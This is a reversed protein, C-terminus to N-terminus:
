DPAAPPGFLTRWWQRWRSLPKGDADLPRGDNAYREADEIPKGAHFVQRQALKGNPHFRRLVGQLKGQRYLAEELLTGDPLWTKCEGHLAGRAYHAVRQVTGDPLYYVAKGDLKGDAYNLQAARSGDPHMLTARGHLTGRAYSLVAVPMDGAWVRATGHLAGDLTTGEIRADGRDISVNRLREELQAM